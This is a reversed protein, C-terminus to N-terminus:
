GELKKGSPPEPLPMWHTVKISIKNTSVNDAILVPNWTDIVGNGFLVLVKNCQTDEWRPLRESVPIWRRELQERLALLAMHGHGSTYGKFFEIAKEIQETM